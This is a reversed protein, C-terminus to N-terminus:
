RWLDQSLNVIAVPKTILEIDGCTKDRASEGGRGATCCGASIRQLSEEARRLIEEQLHALSALPVAAPIRARRSSATPASSSRAPVADSVPTQTFAIPSVRDPPCVQAIM